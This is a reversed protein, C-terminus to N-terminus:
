QGQFGVSVMENALAALDIGVEQKSAETIISTWDQPLGKAGLYAGLIAGTIAAVTDNDRGYNVVFELTKKFDGEGYLLATLNILHIEAAHFPIDQLLDDLESYAHQVKAFEFEDYPYGKPVSQDPLIDKPSLQQANHVIRRSQEYLRNAIRGVLRSEFYRNPDIERSAGVIEELDMEPDMAKAVYAATLGTIDRAYGIDFIGLRYAEEYAKEGTAPYYAGVMPAYLMGACSMEGGYFKNVAYSYADIDGALYPKAVRAWEQLWTMHRVQTELEDPLFDDVKKIQGKEELYVDIIYQAFSRASLKSPTNGYQSLHKAFLYKWRTDDTTGGPKMNHDWPGEPSGERILSGPQNVYGLQIIIEDRHWMETPAGLADGIASGLLMGLVKDAYLEKNLKTPWQYEAITDVEIPPTPFRLEAKSSDKCAMLGIFICLWITRVLSLEKM